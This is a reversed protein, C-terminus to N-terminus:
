IIGIIGYYEIRLPDLGLGGGGFIHCRYNYKVKWAIALSM